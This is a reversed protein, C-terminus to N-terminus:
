RAINVKGFAGSGIERWYLYFDINSNSYKGYDKYYRKVYLSLACLKEKFFSSHKTTSITLETRDKNRANFSEPVYLM